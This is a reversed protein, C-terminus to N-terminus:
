TADAMREVPISSSPRGRSQGRIDTPLYGFRARFRATFRSASAYGAALAVHLVPADTNQLLALAHSMRVDQLLDRFAVGEAALRRRLTPVSTAAERAVREMSWDASPDASLIRRVQQGISEPGPPAFRFGREGLWLLVEQLRHTAISAPLADADSLADFARHFSTHFAADLGGHLAVRPGAHRGAVAATALLEPLWAIWLARYTGGRGPTNAIDVVEGAQLTLAEAAGATCEGGSWRIRKRGEEVLILTAQEVMVRRSTLDSRQVIHGAAGVGPRALVM